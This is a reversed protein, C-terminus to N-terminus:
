AQKSGAARRRLAFAALLIALVAANDVLWDRLEADRHLAPIAQVCEILAGFLSLGLWIWVLRLKPWALVALVALTVFALTHQETDTPEFPLAPARPLTAMVFAFLLAAFFTLRFLLRLRNL